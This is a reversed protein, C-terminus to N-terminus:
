ESRSWPYQCKHKCKYLQPKSSDAAAHDARRRAGCLSGPAWCRQPSYGRAIGHLLVLPVQVLTVRYVLTTCSARKGPSGTVWCSLPVLRENADVGRSMQAWNDCCVHDTVRSHWQM